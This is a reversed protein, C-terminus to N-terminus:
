KHFIRMLVLKLFVFKEFFRFFSSKYIYTYENKVEGGFSMKFKTINATRPNEFNVSALDLSKFNNKKGWLCIEWIIRRTANSMIKYLEKDNTKLRLSFISRIRLYPFSEMVYIASIMKKKYYASFLKCQSLENKSVPVRKQLYEFNKYLFYSEEFNTDASVFKLDDIKYARRIENRTTDNFKKFIEDESKTLNILATTKTLVSFGLLDLQKYSTTSIKSYKKSKIIEDLKDDELVLNITNFFLKKSEFIM